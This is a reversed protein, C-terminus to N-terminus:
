WVYSTYSTATGRVTRCATHYRGTLLPLPVHLSRPNPTAVPPAREGRRRKYCRADTLASQSKMRTHIYAVRMMAPM